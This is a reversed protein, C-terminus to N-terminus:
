FLLTLTMIVRQNMLGLKAQDTILIILPTITGDRFSDTQHCFNQVLSLVCRKGVKILDALCVM